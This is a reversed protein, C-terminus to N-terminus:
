CIHRRCSHCYVNTYSVPWILASLSIQKAKRVPRAPRGTLVRTFVSVNQSTDGRETAKHIHVVAWTEQLSPRTHGAVKEWLTFQQWVSPSYGPAFHLLPLSFSLSYPVSPSSEVAVDCKVRWSFVACHLFCLLSSYLTVSHLRLCARVPRESHNANWM